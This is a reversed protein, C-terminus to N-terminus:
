RQNIFRILYMGGPPGLESPCFESRNWLGPQHESDKQVVEICSFVSLYPLIVSIMFHVVPYPRIIAFDCM